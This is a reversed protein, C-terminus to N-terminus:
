GADDAGVSRREAGLDIVRLIAASAAPGNRAEIADVIAAHGAVTRAHHGPDEMASSRAFAALLAAEIAAAMSRLLPNGSIDALTVHFLADAEAFSRRGHDPCAMAAVCARLRAIDAVTRRQAALAAGLPEVARRLDALHAQFEADLGQQVKWRLLDSDFFNWHREPRVRTGIKTKSVVLGKAALTKLVERLVPRSVAFRALLDSEHPLNAGPLCAGSVIETGLAETIRAQASRPRPPTAFGALMTTTGDVPDAEVAM